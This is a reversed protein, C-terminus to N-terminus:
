PSPRARTVLFVLGVYAIYLVGSTIALVFLGQELSGGLYETLLLAFLTVGTRVADWVLQIKNKDILNLTQTVPVVAFRILFLAALEQTYPEVGAWQSGFAIEFLEGGLTALVLAPIMGVAFLGASTRFVLPSVRQSKLRNIKSLTSAYVTGVSHAILDMPLSVVRYVLSVFGVEMPQYLAAFILLPGYAGIQSLLASWTSFLPFSRFKWILAPATRIDVIIKLFSSRRVGMGFCLAGSVRGIVDGIILGRLNPELIGCLAQLSSQVSSQLVKSRAIAGYKETRAGYSNTIQISGMAVLGFFLELAGFKGIRFEGGILHELALITIPSMAASMVILACFAVFVLMRMQEFDEATIVAQDLRLTALVVLLSVLSTFLTYNGFDAPTYIRALVFSFLLSVIQGIGTGLALTKVAGLFRHREISM